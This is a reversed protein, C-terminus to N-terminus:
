KKKLLCVFPKTRINDSPAKTRVISAETDIGTRVLTSNCQCTIWDALSLGAKKAASEWAIKDTALLRMEYRTTKTM